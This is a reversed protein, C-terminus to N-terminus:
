ADFPEEDIDTNDGGMKAEFFEDDFECPYCRCAPCRWGVNPRDMQALYEAENLFQPGCDECIIRAVANTENSEPTM